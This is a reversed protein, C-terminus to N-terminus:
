DNCKGELKIYHIVDEKKVKISCNVSLLSELLPFKEKIEKLSLKNNPRLTKCTFYGDFGHTSTDGWRKPNERAWADLANMSQKLDKHPCEKLLNDVFDYRSVLERWAHSEVKDVFSVETEHKKIAAKIPKFRPDKAINKMGGKTVGCIVFKEAKPNQQDYLEKFRLYINLEEENFDQISHGSAEVYYFLKEDHNSLRQGKYTQVNTLGSYRFRILTFGKATIVNQGKTSTVTVDPTWTSTLEYSPSGFKKIEEKLRALQGKLNNKDWKAPKLLIVHSRDSLSDRYAHVADKHHIRTDAIMFKVSDEVEYTRDIDRMNKGTVLGRAYFQIVIDSPVDSVNLLRKAKNWRDGGLYKFEKVIPTKTDTLLGHPASNIAKNYAVIREYENKIPAVTKIIADTAEEKVLEFRGKLYAISKEDLSLSERGPTIGVKGIPVELRISSNMISYLSRDDFAGYDVIYAVNGMIVLPKNHNRDGWSTSELYWDKGEITKEITDLNLEVNTTPRTDFYKYVQECRDVFAQIDKNKVQYSVELGNLEKTKTKGLLIMSPIGDDTTVMYSTRVGDLYSTVSFSEAYALPALKGIGFLGNQDNSQRKTSAGMTSFLGLMTEEDMSIGYDRVSFHPELITPVHVDFKIPLGGDICADCANTSLERIGAMIIDTYVKSSIMEFMTNNLEISFGQMTANGGVTDTKTIPIM